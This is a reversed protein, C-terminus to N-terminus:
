DNEIVKGRLTYKFYQDPSVLDEELLVLRNSPNLPVFRFRSPPILYSKGGFEKLNCEFFQNDCEIVVKGTSYNLRHPSEIELWGPFLGENSPRLYSVIPSGTQPLTTDCRIIHENTSNRYVQVTMLRAETSQLDDMWTKPESDVIVLTKHKVTSMLKNLRALDLINSYKDLKKIHRETIDANLIKDIQIQIHSFWSHRELEVEVLWWDRYNKEILILDPRAKQGLFYIDVEFPFCYHFPFIADAFNQVVTSFYKESWSNTEVAAYKSGFRDHITSM